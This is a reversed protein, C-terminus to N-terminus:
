RGKAQQISRMYKQEINEAIPTFSCVPVGAGIMDALLRAQGSLGSPMSLTLSLEKHEVIQARDTLCSWDNHPKALRILVHQQALQYAGLPEHSIITGAAITLMHTCYTELETLIHSSVIITAGGACLRRVLASLEIRADPDLGSAPEDLLILDPSHILAQAIGVRQRWGRSLVGARDNLRDELGIEAVIRDVWEKEQRHDAGRMAASHQLCQRVTLKNYLGFSDHLYGIRSYVARTDDDVSFGGVLVRGSLPTELGALCRLLTTKGAGNPGVLATVSQAPIKFSVCDLARRGPYDFVLNDAVVDPVAVGYVPLFM